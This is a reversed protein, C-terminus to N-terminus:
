RITHELALFAAPRGNHRGGYACLQILFAVILAPSNPMVANAVLAM